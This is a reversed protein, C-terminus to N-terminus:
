SSADEPHPVPGPNPLRSSPTSLDWDPAKPPRSTEPASGPAWQTSTLNGKRRQLDLILAGLEAVAHEADEAPYGDLVVDFVSDFGGGSLLSGLWRPTWRDLWTRADRFRGFNVQNVATSMSQLRVGVVGIRGAGRAFSLVAAIALVGFVILGLRFSTLLSEMLGLAIVLCGIVWRTSFRRSVYASLGTIQELRTEQVMANPRKTGRGRVRVYLIFRRSTVYLTGLGQEWTRLQTVHYARWVREEEALVIPTGPINVFSGTGPRGVGPQASVGHGGLAAGCNQCFPYGAPTEKGCNPCEVKPFSDAQSRRFSSPQWRRRWGAM